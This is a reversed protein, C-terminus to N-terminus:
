SRCSSRDISSRCEGHKKTEREKSQLRDKLHVVVLNTALHVPGAKSSVVKVVIALEFFQNPGLNAPVPGVDNHGVPAEVHKVVAFGVGLWEAVHVLKQM